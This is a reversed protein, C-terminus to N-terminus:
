IRQNSVNVCLSIGWFLLCYSVPVSLTRQSIISMLPQFLGTETNATGQKSPVKTGAEALYVSQSCVRRDTRLVWVTRSLVAVLPTFVGHARDPDEHDEVKSYLCMPMFGLYNRGFAFRFLFSTVVFL